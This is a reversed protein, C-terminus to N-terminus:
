KSIDAGTEADLSDNQRNVIQEREVTSRLNWLSRCQQGVDILESHSPYEADALVNDGGLDVKKQRRAKFTQQRISAKLLPPKPKQIPANPLHHQNRTPGHFDTPGGRETRGMM